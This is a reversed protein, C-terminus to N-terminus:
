NFLFYLCRSKPTDKKTLLFGRSLTPESYALTSSCFLFLLDAYFTQTLPERTYLSSDVFNVSPNDQFAITKTLLFLYFLVIGGDSIAKPM